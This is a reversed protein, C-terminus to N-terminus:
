DIKRFILSANTGGFGFSNSLATKIDAKRAENPVYDLDCEPDPFEQNITPPLIGQDLALVTFAAEVAGAAGLLHGTMSKTSSVPIKYARQGFVQKIANTENSDNLPTSTGHANIYEIEDPNIGGDKLAALMCREPGDLSPATIHSADSSMGYGVIEAYIKAGRKKAREMEELILMGSGEGIIFGDREKDFPRSAREPEDNRTSLARMANFGAFTLPICPAETGGAFMADAEGNRIAMAAYGIAHASAACATTTCCNPGKANFFISVYGAAMNNIINTIFFPSLRGPGKEAMTLVTNVYTEMGGIGSGIITGTHPSLEETIELGSDELALKASAVAYQIFADTKRAEKPNMFLEPDFGNIEAAIQTKHESPDFKSIRRVGSRGACVADWTEKNGIGLPTVLGIGTVAVRRKM